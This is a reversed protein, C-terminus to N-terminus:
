NEFAASLRKLVRSRRFWSYPSLRSSKPPTSAVKHANKLLMRKLCRRDARTLEDCLLKVYGVWADALRSVGRYHLWQGVLNFAPTGSAIGFEEATDLIVGRESCSLRHDAWAVALVPALVLCALSEPNQSADSIWQASRPDHIGCIEAFRLPDFADDPANKLRDALHQEESCYFVRELQERQTRLASVDARM